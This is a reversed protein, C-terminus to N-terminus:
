VIEATRQRAVRFECPQFNLLSDLLQYQRRIHLQERSVSCGQENAVRLLHSLTIEAMVRDRDKKQAM